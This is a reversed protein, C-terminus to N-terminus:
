RAMAMRFGRTVDVPAIAEGETVTQDAVTGSFTPERNVTVIPTGEITVTFTLTAPDGDSDEVRYTLDM